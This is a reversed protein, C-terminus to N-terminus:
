APLPGLLQVGMLLCLVVTVLVYFAYHVIADTFELDLSYSAVFAGAAVIPPVILLLHFLELRDLNLVLGPLWAYAGWLAAYLAGCILVRVMLSLGRYPELEDDRLFTYGGLVLPPALLFAGIGLVWPSVQELGRLLMAVVLVMVIGSVIGVIVLPSLKAEKRAIPKLVGVGAANKPGFEEPVHVIVEETVEPITIVTKCKPCPGKKGAFKESVKFRSKCGPCLVEIPM